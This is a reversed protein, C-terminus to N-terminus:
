INKAIYIDNLKIGKNNIFCLYDPHDQGINNYHSIDSEAKRAYITGDSLTIQNDQFEKINLDVTGKWIVEGNREFWTNNMDITGTWIESINGDYIGGGIVCDFSTFFVQNTINFEQRWESLDPLTDKTYNNDQLVYMIYNGAFNDRFCVWYATNTTFSSGYNGSGNWLRWVSNDRGINKSETALGMIQHERSTDSATVKSYFFMEGTGKDVNMKIVNGNFNTILGNESTIDGTPNGNFTTTLQNLDKSYFNTGAKVDLTKTFILSDSITATTGQWSIKDNRLDKLYCGTFDISGTFADVFSDSESRGIRYGNEPDIIHSINEKSIDSIFDGDSVKYSLTYKSGTFVFHLEYDTNTQVEYTGPAEWDWSTSDAHLSVVIRFHGEEITLMIGRYDTNSNFIRQKTTVDNGTKIKLNLVYWDSVALKLDPLSVYNSSSFNSVIGNKITPSGVITGNVNDPILKGWAYYPKISGSNYEDESGQWIKLEKFSSNDNQNKVLSSLISNTNGLAM